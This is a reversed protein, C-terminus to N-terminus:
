FLNTVDLRFNLAGVSEINSRHPNFGYAVTFNANVLSLRVGPGVGYRVGENVPWVRAVDLIAVPSVSYVNLEHLFADIARHGPALKQWAENLYKDSAIDNLDRLKDTLRDVDKILTEIGTALKAESADQLSKVLKQAYASVTPLADTALQSVVQPDQKYAIMSAAERASVLNRKINRVYQGVAQQSIIAPPILSLEESLAGLKSSLEAAGASIAPSTRIYNPDKIKYNNALNRAATGFPLNLVGPFSPDATALEKPLLPMGWATFSVTANASYFRTGGLTSNSRAGLQNEPISRIFADGLIIWSSDQVFPRMGNGGLFREALPTGSANQILGAAFRTEVNVARHVAPNLPGKFNERDGMTKRFPVPISLNYGMDALYKRFHPVEHLFTSGLQFGYSITFANRGPRGTVGAYLKLSGYGSSPTLQTASLTGSSQQHGGEMASGYRVIMHTRSFEKTFASIRGTIKGEKFRASGAPVDIYEFTGAWDYQNRLGRAPGLELYASGSNGSLQSEGLFRFEGTTDSFNLGGWFRRTKNYGALPAFLIHRESLRTAGTTGPRENETAQQEISPPLFSPVVTTFIPYVVRLSRSEPDCDYLKGAAFSLKVQQQSSAFTAKLTSSLFISDDEFSLHSFLANDKLKLRKKLSSSLSTWPTIFGIPDKVSVQRITYGDYAASENKCDGPLALCNCGTCILTFLIWPIRQKWVRM